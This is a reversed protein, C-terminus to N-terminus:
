WVAEAMASDTKVVLTSTQLVCNSPCPTLNEGFLINCLVSYNEILLISSVSYPHFHLGIPDSTVLPSLSTFKRAGVSSSVLAVLAETLVTLFVDRWAKIDVIHSLLSYLDSLM